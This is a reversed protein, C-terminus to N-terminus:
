VLGTLILLCLFIVKTKSSKLLLEMRNRLTRFRVYQNGEFDDINFGHAKYKCYLEKIGKDLDYELKFDPLVESLLDFNVRYNRPDEGIEGTYVINAKPILSKIKDVIDKVQYNEKNSGINIKKNHINEEPATLFAVFTRAIDKCHILPRWPSGDSMVRIDGRAFACALLNNVVLDIRLMPSFGYATANRLYVPTFNDGALKSIANESEIKSTAYATLPNVKNKEDLDLKEGKGYISCSSSLLFRAVGAKKAKKAVNITGERNISFTIDPNMEGMPDNSIAALHMICDYGRLENVTLDRIDKILENDPKTFSEFECGEFLNIDCGTVHHGADKLLQVLHVGIYGNHGTVFVKM